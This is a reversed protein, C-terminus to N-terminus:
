EVMLLHDRSSHLVRVIQVGDHSRRYFIVYNGVPFGRLGLALDERLVGMEPYRAIRLCTEKLKALLGKAALPNDKAIYDFISYLDRQASSSFVPRSM